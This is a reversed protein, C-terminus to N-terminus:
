FLTTVNMSYTNHVGSYSNVNIYFYGAGSVIISATEINLSTSVSSAIINGTGDCIYLDLDSQSNDFTITVTITQGVGGYVYYWDDDNCILSYTGNTLLKAVSISDNEEYGDDAVTVASTKTITMSYTNYTYGRNYVRIYYTGSTTAKYGAIEQNSLGTSSRLVSGSNSQIALDIDGQSHTFDLQVTLTDGATLAIAYFDDNGSICSLSSIIGGTVTTATAITNNPEYNDDNGSSYNSSFEISYTNPGNAGKVIIYYNGSTVATLSIVETNSFSDVSRDLVSDNQNLLYLDLDGYHSIFNITVTLPAGATLYVKYWNMTDCTINELTSSNSTVEYATAATNNDPVLGDDASQPNICGLFWVIAILPLLYKRSM